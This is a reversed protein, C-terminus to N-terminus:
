KQGKKVKFETRRNPAHEDESCEVGDKCRNIIKTEGMGKGGLRNKDVGKSIIYNIASQARKQSLDMNFEITGRADTHSFIEITIDSNKKLVNIVKNLTIIGEPLLDWKGYNYYINEIISLMSDKKAESQMKAVKLWPDDFYINSLMQEDTPLFEFRFFKGSSKLTAFISGKTDALFVDKTTISPDNEDLKVLFNQDAPLNIFKFNGKADTTAYGMTEGKTNVIKVKSNAIPNKGNKDSFLTGKLDVLLQSDEVTLLSLTNKDSALIQFKFSGGQSVGIEKGSKNTFYVKSSSLKPDAADLTVTFNQDPSINIFVFSGFANTTTSQIKEGKENLLIVRTNEIPVREEGAYLNGAISFNKLSPDEEILQSLKSIDSPLNEFIFINKNGKVAVRVVKNKADALYFKKQNGIGPDNEDMRIMYSQDSIVNEFKFFGSGDTSTTQLITGKDTLLFIDVNEAVDDIKYSLLIKGSISTILGSLTFGYIDDSGAGGPRNSSFYGSNDDKFIIGFDDNTSNIPPMINKVNGWSGNKQIASFLDLGGFGTQGNSSFYLVNNSSIYPFSEDGATNIESGLNQPKGWVGDERKAVYIDSGGQGGPSTSAFYLYQGDKSLSPHAMAYDNSNFPVPKASRWRSGHKKSWYIKPVSVTGKKRTLNDVKTFFMESFDNSFCAPGYHGDGNFKESFIKGKKYIVSDKQKHGRAFVFSLYSNGTWSNKSNTFFDEIQESAFVIGNKYFAPCFDSVPSNIKGLNYVKYLAPNVLLDKINDCAKAYLPGRKDSPNLNAYNEFQKKAEEYKNNNLLAEAYYYYVMPDSYNKSVLKGYYQEAQGYNKMLRYCDALRKMADDNKNAARRYLPIAKTYEYNDYYKDARPVIPDKQALAGERGQGVLSCFYLSAFVFLYKLFIMNLLLIHKQFRKIM